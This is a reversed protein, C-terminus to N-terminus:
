DGAAVTRDATEGEKGLLQQAIFDAAAEAVAPGFSQGHGGGEVTLLAAWAGAAVLGDKLAVSQDYPVIRDETGHILLMPAADASVHSIPSADRATDRLEQVPGGVLKSEPSDPADHWGGMALLDSPGFYNVVCAVSADVEPHPGIEGDLEATGASVGLMAVLHGGASTGMVAIRDPDLGYEGAHAKIWRIAAKCDHIQAPWQAEDTLRYGISAGIYEGGAVYPGVRLGGRGKDGNQWGGGHVFVVVPLPDESARQEPLYLDLSQRPNGSGAYDIDAVRQVGRPLGGDSGKGKGKARREAVWAALEARSIAGDADIRDFDPRMPEPLENRSLAGDGDSDWRDFLSDPPPAQASLPLSGAQILFVFSGLLLLATRTMTPERLRNPFPAGTTPLLQLV